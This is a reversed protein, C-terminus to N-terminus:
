EKVLVSMGPKLGEVKKTPYAKIQFTKRDFDGSSRTARWTAFDAQVAMHKVKLEIEQDNLAPVFARFVEGVKYHGLKDERINFVVWEDNTDILNIVPYGANVIEGRTPIITEVTANYPAYVKAGDLYANVEAIAGNAKAVMAAAAEKDEIRTGSKAMEYQSKAAAAQKQLAVMQTYAEDKKQAPVVKAEYLNSVRQYTKEALNAAAQAQQWVNYAGTIQEKRAGAYAKQEQAVAASKAAEAQSKKAQIETSELELLLDGEKVKQGEQVFIEKVRGPVKPAVNIQTAEVQGQLYNDQPRNYYWISLGVVTGFVLLTIIISIIDKTKM